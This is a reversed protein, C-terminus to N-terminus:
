NGVAIAPYPSSLDALEDQVHNVGALELMRDNIRKREIENPVTGRLTVVGDNVSASMYNLSKDAVMMEFIEHGVVRNAMRRESDATSASTQHDIASQSYGSVCGLALALWLLTKCKLTMSNTIM